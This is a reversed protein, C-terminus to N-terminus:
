WRKTKPMKLWLFKKLSIQFMLKQLINEYKSIRVHDAVEFKSDKVNKEICFDIYKNPMVDVPKM